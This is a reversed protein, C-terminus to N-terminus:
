SIEIALKITVGNDQTEINILTDLKGVEQMIVPNKEPLIFSGEIRIVIWNKYGHIRLYADPRYNYKSIENLIIDLIRYSNSLYKEYVILNLDRYIWKVKLQPYDYELFEILESINYIKRESM